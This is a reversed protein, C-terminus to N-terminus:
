RSAPPSSSLFAEAKAVIHAIDLAAADLWTITLDHPRFWAYQRRIFDHTELKIREVVEDLSARGEIYPRFQRYGLGAMAPLDWAYGRELLARVEAELGAEMMADVRADARAYLAKREMTLGLRLARYPPEVAQRQESFPRGTILCVELARIVRRPNRADVFAAAAPDLAVLQAWLDALPQAELEARLTPHPPVEPVQWGTLLARIYQGTGGVLLPVRGRYTVDSIAQRALELYTALSVTENPNAIDILHHVVAVREAPTPKATGIDMGRYLQRSDASIIEGGLAQALAIGLATKGVATPGVIVILPLPDM